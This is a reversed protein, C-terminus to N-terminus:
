RMPLKCALYHRDHRERTRLSGPLIKLGEQEFEGEAKSDSTSEALVQPKPKEIHEYSVGRRARHTLERLLDIKEEEAVKTSSEHMQLKLRYDAVAAVLRPRLGEIAMGEPIQTVLHALNAGSLAAAELLSGFLSGDVNPTESAETNSGSLCYALLIEWLVASHAQCRQAFAVALMLSQAGKLYLELVVKAEAESNDGFHEMIYALESAFIHSVGAGGKREKELLKGVEAPRIGGLQLVVQHLVFIDADLV